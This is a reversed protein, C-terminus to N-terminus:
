SFNFRQSFTASVGSPRNPPSSSRFPLTTNRADSAERWM